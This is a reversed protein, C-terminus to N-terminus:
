SWARGRASACSDISAPTSGSKALKMTSSKPRPACSRWKAACVSARHCGGPKGRTRSTAGLQIPSGSLSATPPITPRWRAMSTSSFEVGRRSREVVARSADLFSAASVDRASQEAAKRGRQCDITRVAIDMNHSCRSWEWDSRAGLLTVSFVGVCEPFVRLRRHATGIAAFLRSHCCRKFQGRWCHETSTAPSCRLCQCIM